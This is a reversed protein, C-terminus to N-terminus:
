RSSRRPSRRSPSCSTEGARRPPPRRRRRRRRRRGATPSACSRASNACSRRTRPTASHRHHGGRRHRRGSTRIPRRRCAARRRRGAAASRRAALRARRRRAARCRRCRPRHQYRQRREARGGRIACAGGSAGCGRSCAQRAQLACAAREATGRDTQLAQLSSRQETAGRAAASSPRSPAKASLEPRRAQARMENNSEHATIEFHERRDAGKDTEPSGREAVSDASAAGASAARGTFEGSTTPEAPREWAAVIFSMIALCSPSFIM